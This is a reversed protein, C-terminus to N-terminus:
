GRAPPVPAPAPAMPPAPPPPAAQVPAPQPPPPQSCAALLAMPIVVFAMAAGRLLRHRAMTESVAVM